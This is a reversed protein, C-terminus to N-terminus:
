GLKLSDSLYRQTNAIEEEIIRNFVKYDSKSDLISEIDNPNSVMHDTLSLRNLLDVLKNANSDRVITAFPKNYKASMVTGHFTDTVICQANKFAALVQFPTWAPFADCWTQAGGVCYTKLGNKSAYRKIAEIENKDNIRGVYAYVIMYKENIDITKEAEKIEEDFPYILVPDLNYVSEVGAITKVFEFTNKDRVSVAKLRNIAEKLGSVCISPLDEAKTYGCSAAYSIVLPVNINGFLQTSVGWSCKPNCNFVEDSGIVVAQTDPMPETRYEESLELINKQESKLIATIENTVNRFKLAKLIDKNCYKKIKRLPTENVIESQEHYEGDKIDIFDVTHGLLELTRKLGYAQLFSGYNIIRQMSLISIKM